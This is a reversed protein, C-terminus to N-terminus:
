EPPDTSLRGEPHLFWRTRSESPPWDDLDRWGGGEGQVDVTVPRDPLLGTRGLLYTDFWDLPAETM